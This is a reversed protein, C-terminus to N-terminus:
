LLIKIISGVVIGLVVTLTDWKIDKLKNRMNKGEKGIHQSEVRQCM